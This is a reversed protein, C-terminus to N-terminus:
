ESGVWFYRVFRLRFALRRVVRRRADLRREPLLTERRNSAPLSDRVGEVCELRSNREDNAWGTLERCSFVM